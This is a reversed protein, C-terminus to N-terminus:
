QSPVPTWPRITVSLTFKGVELDDGATSRADRRNRVARCQEGAHPPPSPLPPSGNLVSAPGIRGRSSRIQRVALPIREQAGEVPIHESRSEAALMVGAPGLRRCDTWIAGLARRYLADDPVGQRRSLRDPQYQDLSRAPAFRTEREEPEHGAAHYGRALSRRWMAAAGAGAVRGRQLRLDHLHKEQRRQPLLPGHTRGM